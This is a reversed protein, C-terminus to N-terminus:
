ARRTKEDGERAVGRRVVFSFDPNPVTGAAAVARWPVFFRFFLCKLREILDPVGLISVARRMNYVLFVLSYEGNVKEKGKLLTYYFGWSRKITGFPHEM